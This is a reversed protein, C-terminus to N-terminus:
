VIKYIGYSVEEMFEEESVSFFDKEGAQSYGICILDYFYIKGWDKNDTRVLSKDLVEIEHWGLSTHIEKSKEYDLKFKLRQM